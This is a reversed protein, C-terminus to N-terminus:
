TSMGRKILKRIKKPDKRQDQSEVGSSVDIAYPDLETVIKKVNKPNIGGSIIIPKNIQDILSKYENIQFMKGRGHSKDLLIADSEKVRNLQEKKSIGRIIQKSTETKPKSYLQIAEAQTKEIEEISEKSADKTVCVKKTYPGLSTFIKDAEELEVARKTKTNVIVGIAHAGHKEAIKADEKTTIGCIKVRM